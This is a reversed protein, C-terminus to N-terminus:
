SELCINRFPKAKVIEEGRPPSFFLNLKTKVRKVDHYLYGVKNVQTAQWDANNVLCIAKRCYLDERFVQQLDESTEPHSHGRLDVLALPGKTEDHDKWSRDREHRDKNEEKRYIEKAV